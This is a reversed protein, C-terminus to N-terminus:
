AYLDFDIRKSNYFNSSAEDAKRCWVGEKPFTGNESMKLMQESSYPGKVEAEDSSTMKYFWKVTKDETEAVSGSPRSEALKAEDVEDAFMDFEDEAIKPPATKLVLKEYTEEYIDYFGMEIFKNALSTLTELAKKDAENVSASEQNTIKKKSWRQSASQSVAQGGSTKGLRKITKLVTEGSKMFELMQMFLINKEKLGLEQFSEEKEEEAEDEENEEGEDEDHKSTSPKMSDAVQLVAEVRYEEAKFKKFTKVNNWDINDLWADQIDDKDKKWHFFGEKDFNGEELEDKMNFPTVKIDQDFEVTKAESGITEYVGKELVEYKEVDEDEDSDLSHKLKPVAEGTVEFDEEDEDSDDYQKKPKKSLSAQDNRHTTQNDKFSVRKKTSM